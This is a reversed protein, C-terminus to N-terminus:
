GLAGTRREVSARVDATIHAVTRQAQEALVKVWYSNAQQVNRNREHARQSTPGASGEDAYTRTIESRIRDDFPLGLAEYIM